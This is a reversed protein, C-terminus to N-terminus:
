DLPRRPWRSHRGCSRARARTWRTWRCRCCSRSAPALGRPLYEAEVALRPWPICGPASMRSWPHCCPAGQSWTLQGMIHTHGHCHINNTFAAMIALMAQIAHQQLSVSNGAKTQSPAFSTGLSGRVSARLCSRICISLKEKM